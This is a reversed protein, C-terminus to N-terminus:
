NFVAKRKTRLCSIFNNCRHGTYMEAVKCMYLSTVRPDLTFVGRYTLLYIVGLSGEPPLSLYQLGHVSNLSLHVTKWCLMPTPM